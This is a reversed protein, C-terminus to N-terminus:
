DTEYSLNPGLWKEVTPVEMKKRRAYDEVQDKGIKGVAFYVAKPHAFYLGSVSAAPDMALSETLVIGTAQEIDALEWMTLKETHDPQSPYGPAPRIGEYRVRHLDSTELLEEPSYGWFERRVREHLEEAFAEALRDALAKVMIVNYDDHDAKFKQCMDEAGFVSVAFLGCYDRVRAEKSRRLGVSVPLPGYCWAGEGGPCACPFYRYTKFIGHQQRLGYFTALPIGERPLSDERFVQIDDGVSCAPWFGLLGRATLLKESMIKKLM